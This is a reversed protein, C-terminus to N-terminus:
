PLLVSLGVSAPFLRRQKSENEPAAAQEEQEDDECTNSADDEAEPDQPDRARESALFGTLYWRSPPLPLVEESLLPDDGSAFPGILDAELACILQARAAVSAQDPM